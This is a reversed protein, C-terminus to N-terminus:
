AVRFGISGVPPSCHSQWFNDFPSMSFTGPHQPLHVLPKAYWANAPAIQSAEKSISNLGKKERQQRHPPPQPTTANRKSAKKAMRMQFSSKSTQYGLVCVMELTKEFHIYFMLSNAGELLLEIFPKLLLNIFKHSRITILVLTNFGVTSVLRFNRRVECGVETAGVSDGHHRCFSHYECNKLYM